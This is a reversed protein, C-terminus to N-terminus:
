LSLFELNLKHKEDEYAKIVFPLDERSIKEERPHAVFGSETMTIFTNSEQIKQLYTLVDDIHSLQKEIEKAREFREKDM